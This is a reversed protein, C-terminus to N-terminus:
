RAELKRGVLAAITELSRFEEENVDEPEIEVEFERSMFEVLEITQLSTLIGTEILLADDALVVDSQLLEATIFKKIKAIINIKAIIDTSPVDDGKSSDTSV